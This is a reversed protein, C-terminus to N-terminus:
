RIELRNFDIKHETVGPLHRSVPLEKRTNIVKTEVSHLVNGRRM